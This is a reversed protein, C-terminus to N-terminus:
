VSEDNLIVLAFIIIKNFNNIGTFLGLGYKKVEGTNTKFKERILNYTIDFGISKGYLKYLSIM